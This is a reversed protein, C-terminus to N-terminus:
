SPVYPIRVAGSRSRRRQTKLNIDMSTNVVDASVEAPPPDQAALTPSYVVQVWENNEGDTFSDQFCLGVAVIWNAQVSNILQDLAAANEPIGTIYARGLFNRGPKETRQTVVLAVDGPLGESTVGGQVASTPSFVAPVGSAPYVRNARASYMYTDESMLPLLNDEYLGEVHDALALSKKYLADVEVEVDLRFHLVNNWRRASCCLGEVRVEYIDDAAM